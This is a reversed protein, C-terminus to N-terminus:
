LHPVRRYAWVMGALGSTLMLASGLVVGYSTTASLLALVILLVSGPRVTNLAGMAMLIISLLSALLVTVTVVWTLVLASNSSHGMIFYETAMGSEGMLNWMLSERPVLYIAVASLVQVSLGIAGLYVSVRPYEGLKRLVILLGHNM